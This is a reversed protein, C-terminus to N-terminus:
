FSDQIEQKCTMFFLCTEFNDSQNAELPYVPYNHMQNQTNNGFIGKLRVAGFVFSSLDHLPRQTLTIRRSAVSFSRRTNLLKTLIEGCSSCKVSNLPFRITLM